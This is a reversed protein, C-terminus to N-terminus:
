RGGAIGCSTAFLDLMGRRETPVQGGEAAYKKALAHLAAPSLKSWHLRTETGRAKFILGDEDAGVVTARMRAAGLGIFTTESRGGEVGVIIWVRLVDAAHFGAALSRLEAARDAVKEAEEELRAAAAPYEGGAALARAEAVATDGPKPEPRAPHSSVGGPGTAADERADFQTREDVGKPRPGYAPLDQGAEYAGRDPGRGLHDDNINPLPQATDVVPSGRRPRLDVPEREPVPPLPFAVGDFVSMDVTMGHPEVDRFSKRGIRGESRSEHTGVADYDFSCHPGHANIQAGRADGAGYGGWKVGGTPGGICLNNRFLAHDFPQGAYCGLGAGVKVVTNHLIVDGQSYRHLKFPAYTLNYMVNRIFYTPGGLGPQSSLGVFCNTLRNRVIRCNNFCFDAEIGDDAGVFVDNNYIDVCVQEVTGRDEMTSICDRFGKVRNHCIVNGPGTMEIGEGINKGGAGMAESTWPTDSEITNDAIYCNRAGPKYAVVGHVARIECRRVVCYEAGALVVGKSAHGEDTNRITLGEIFVWKKNRLNVQKYVARGDVSRYVVPRQPTGSAPTLVGYTGPKVLHVDAGRPAYPVPRTRAKVARTESGGDPDVLKLEIEYLTGPRLDFISGSHKNGWTFVPTTTRSEGAPVRRLPMARRWAEDGARRYKVSVVGDLDDDGEIAWEVALNVVTPYPTTVEGPVTADHAWATACVGWALSIWLGHRVTM